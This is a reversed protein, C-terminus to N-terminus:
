TLPAFTHEYISGKLCLAGGLCTPIPGELLLRQRATQSRALVLLVPKMPRRQQSRHVLPISNAKDGFDCGTADWARV